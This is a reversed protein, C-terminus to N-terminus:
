QNQGNGWNKDIYKLAAGLIPNDMSKEYRDFPNETEEEPEVGEEGGVTDGGFM